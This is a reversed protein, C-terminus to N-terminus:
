MPKPTFLNESLEGRFVFLVIHKIKKPLAKGYLPKPNKIDYSKAYGAFGKFKDEGTVSDLNEGNTIFMM